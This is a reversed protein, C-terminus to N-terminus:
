GGYKRVLRVLTDIKHPPTEPDIVDTRIMFIGRGVADIMERIHTELEIESAKKIVNQNVAIQFPRKLDTLIASFQRLDGISKLPSGPGISSGM